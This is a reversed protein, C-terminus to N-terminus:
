ELEFTLTNVAGLAVDVVRERETKESPLEPDACSVVRVRWKGPHLGDFRAVGARTDALFVSSRVGEAASEETARVSCISSARGAPFAVRVELVAGPRLVLDVGARVENPTVRLVASQAPQRHAIAVVVIVDVDTPVGRLAYQGDAGSYACPTDTVAVSALLVADDAPASLVRELRVCVGALGAGAEDVVRGTIAALPLDVDFRSQVEPVDVDCEFALARAPHALSARYPGLALSAISYEGNGNTRATLADRPAVEAARPTLSLTVGSLPQGAETVRGTLRGRAPVVLQVTEDSQDAVVVRAFAADGLSLGRGDDVQFTHEGPALHTFRLTGSANTRSADPNNAAPQALEGHVDTHTIRVGRVQAGLADRVEVVVTGGVHLRVNETVDGADPLVNVEGRFPAYDAHRVDLRAKAGPSSNVRAVGERDSVARKLALEPTTTRAETAQAEDVLAVEAGAIGLETAADVVRVTVVPARELRVVGLDLDGGAVPRLDTVRRTTYGRAEIVLTIPEDGSAAFVNAFRVRGDAFSRQARGGAGALPTLFAAGARVEFETVPTSTAADVVQFVLAREPVYTLEVATDGAHAEVWASLAPAFFDHENARMAVRYTVDQSLGTVTFSGDAACRAGRPLVAFREADVHEGAYLRGAPAANKPVASLWASALVAPPAGLVRGRIEAGDALVFELGDVVEGARATEGRELKEPRGDAVVLLLWPGSALEEVRFTGDDATLAAIDGGSSSFLAEPKADPDLRRIAARAIPARARDVVRGTLVVSPQLTIDGLAHDADSTALVREHPAFGRARVALRLNGASTPALEFRGADDTQTEVREAWAAREPALHELPIGSSREAAALYVNAHSIVAGRADVVRGTFPSGRVPRASGPVQEGSSRSPPADLAPGPQAPSVVDGSSGAPTRVTKEPDAAPTSRLLLATLALGAALAAAAFFLARQSM